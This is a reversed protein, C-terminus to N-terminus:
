MPRADATAPDPRLVYVRSQADVAWFRKRSADYMMGLSVHARATRQSRRRRPAAFGVPRGHLRLGARSPEAAEDGSFFLRRARAALDKQRRAMALLAAYEEALPNRAALEADIATWKGDICLRTRAAGDDGQQDQGGFALGPVDGGPEVSAGWIVRQKLDVSPLRYPKPGADAALGAAVLGM